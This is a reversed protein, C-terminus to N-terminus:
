LDYGNKGFVAKLREMKIVTFKKYTEAIHASPLKELLTKELYKRCSEEDPFHKFFYFLNYNESM